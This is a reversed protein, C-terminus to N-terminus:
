QAQRVNLEAAKKRREAETKMESIARLATASYQPEVWKGDAWSPERAVATQFELLARDRDLTLWRAIAIAMSTNAFHGHEGPTKRVDNAATTSAQVGVSQMLSIAQELRRIEIASMAFQFLITTSTPRQQAAADLLEYGRPYQAARYYWWGLRAMREPANPAGPNSRLETALQEAAAPENSLLLLGALADNVDPNSGQGSEKIWNQFQSVANERDSSVLLDAYTNVTEADVHLKLLQRYTEAAARFNAQFYDADANIRLARPFDPHERLAQSALGSAEKYRHARLANEARDTWLLYSLEFPRESKAQWGQTEMLSHIQAVRDDTAPHSRFYGEMTALVVRAAEEQPSKAQEERAERFRRDFADFMRLAGTASYGSEVGLRTGERDAELEQEKSYGAQFLELPVSLILRFVGLHQLRSQVQLRDIAHYRDIHEIEHGLISALEDESDMLDLLGRGVYVHGGPIAFANVMYSEPIYHFRYPLKRNSRAALVVGVKEIYRRFLATEESAQDSSEYYKYREALENGIRIEEADSLRTASLPLRSLERETDGIFHLVSDPGVETHPKRLQSFVLGAVLLAIVVVLPAWRKM